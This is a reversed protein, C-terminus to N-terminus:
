VASLLAQWLDMAKYLHHHTPHPGTPSGLCLPKELLADGAQLSWTDWSSCHSSPMVWGHEQTQTLSEGGRSGGLVAVAPSSFVVQKFLVSAKGGGAFGFAVRSVDASPFTEWKTVRVKGWADERWLSPTGCWHCQLLVVASVFCRAEGVGAGAHTPQPGWHPRLESM